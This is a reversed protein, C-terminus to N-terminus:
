ARESAGGDELLVASTCKSFVGTGDSFTSPSTPPASVSQALASTSTLVFLLLVAGLHGPRV